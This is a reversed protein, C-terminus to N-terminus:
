LFEDPLPNVWRAMEALWGAEARFHDLARQLFALLIGILHSPSRCHLFEHRTTVEARFREVPFYLMESGVAMWFEFLPLAAFSPAAEGVQASRRPLAARGIGAGRTSVSKDM